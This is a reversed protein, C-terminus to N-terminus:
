PHQKASTQVTLFCRGFRKDAPSYYVCIPTRYKNSFDDQYGACGIVWIDTPDGQVPIQWQYGQSHEVPITDTQSPECSPMANLSLIPIGSPRLQGRSHGVTTHPDSLFHATWQGDNVYPIFVATRDANFFADGIRIDPANILVQIRNAKNNAELQGTSVVYVKWTFLAIVVTAAATWFSSSRVVRYITQVTGMPM